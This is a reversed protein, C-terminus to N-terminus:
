VNSSVAIVVVLAVVLVILVVVTLIVVIAIGLLAAARFSKVPALFKVSVCSIRRPLFNGEFALFKM